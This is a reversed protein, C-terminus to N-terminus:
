RKEIGVTFLVQEGAKLPLNNAFWMAVFQLTVFLFMFLYHHKTVKRVSKGCECLGGDYHRKEEKM